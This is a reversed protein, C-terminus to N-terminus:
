LQVEPTREQLYVKKLFGRWQAFQESANGTLEITKKEFAVVTPALEADMSQGLEQLADRHVKTEQSTQFSDGLLKAGVIGGVAGATMAGSSTVLSDSNSGAAVAVIALGIALIGLAAQGAAKMQAASKAEREILSQEQWVLYSMNMRESFSRFNDQMGDVFLQDRIRIARTRALMPDDDSPFGALQYQGNKIILHKSFAKEVFSAGFRLDTLRKIEVVEETKQYSLEEVIHKAAKVFMPDYPDKGKNRINKYFAPEVELEFSEKDWQRGSIDLIQLSIEVDEGNSEEIRGIIYLDGTATKDPTVRVAGFANTDELANKLKYAFRIAEARRLEPWIGEEQEDEVDGEKKTLGPHFVPIIIDLKPKSPNNVPQADRKASSLKDFFSSLQPGASVSSESGSESNIVCGTLFISCFIVAIVNHRMLKM